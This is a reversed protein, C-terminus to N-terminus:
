EVLTVKSPKGSIEKVYRPLLYGPLRQRLDTMIKKGSEESVEFHWTGTAKDLQHMYYPQVGHKMLKESLETCVEVSDNIGKLLVSQNLLAAGTQRLTGLTKICKKGLEWPHNVHIVFVVSYRKQLSSISVLLGKDIRSPFVVPVRTHIRVKRIHPITKMKAYIKSLYSNSLMLPDGGSLILESIQTTRHIYEWAEDWQRDTSPIANFPFGRRFCFRCHVACASSALMLVRGHYKYLIGPAAAACLDDVPDSCFGTRRVGEQQRPIVQLLLPDYWDKQKMNAAYERPVLFPFDNTLNIGYPSDKIALGLFDLLQEISNFFQDSSFKYFHNPRKTM